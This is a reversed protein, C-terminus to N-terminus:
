GASLLRHLLPMLQRQRILPEITNHQAHDVAVLEVNPLGAMREAQARDRPHGVSYAIFVHPPHMTAAYSDRLNEAYDPALRLLDLYEPTAPGLSEVFARAFDTSGAISLAAAAGLQLGYYLAAYGGLSVGFTFIRRGGIEGVIRRLAEVTSARDPGLAPIGCAGALNRLDKIYVLNAPLRGLWQHVFDVPLGLTGQCACFCILVADCGPRRVIQVEAHRDERFALASPAHRPMGEFLAVLTGLYTLDPYLPHLLRAAYETVDIRGAEWLEHCAAAWEYSTSRDLAPPTHYAFGYELEAIRGAHPSASAQASKAALGSTQVLENM